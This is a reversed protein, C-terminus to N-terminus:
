HVGKDDDAECQWANVALAVQDVEGDTMEPYCPLTLVEGALLETVPLSIDAYAGDFFPQRHDPIPYHVDSAVQSAKLHRALSDRQSCRVVYLHAVYETGGFAPLSVRPHDIRSAYRAAIQRRRENAGDLDPLFVSLIAAQLEDLRSNRGGPVSVEYKAGWGYQRLQRVKAALGTDDTLVAGGDGLAGLNKTPYFSFAAINGFSGARRGGVQAGHCQACDELLAIGRRRCLAAIEDIGAAIRGYLHTVVVVRAGADIAREVQALTACASDEAVDMFLPVAGIALVANTTYMAANAVTAVQDGAQVGLSRLALEIADTGNAVGICHGLGIYAAFAKEFQAVEPGLVLWGSSLVKSM